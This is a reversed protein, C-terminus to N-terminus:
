YDKEKTVIAVIYVWLEMINEMVFEMTYYTKKTLKIESM